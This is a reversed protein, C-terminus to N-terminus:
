VLRHSIAYHMLAATSDVKLKELIRTRYTSVTNISLNLNDAITTLNKGSSLLIMVQFERESLLEHAPQEKEREISASLSRRMSATLFRNGSLSTKVAVILDNPATEKPLYGCAGARLAKSAYLEEPHISLILIPTQIGQSVIAKVLEIGSKDPLSVDSIIVDWEEGTAALQGDHFSGAEGYRADPWEETLIQRLGKRVIAHDDILLIRM